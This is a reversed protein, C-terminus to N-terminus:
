IEVSFLEAPSVAESKFLLQEICTKLLSHSKILKLESACALLISVSDNM